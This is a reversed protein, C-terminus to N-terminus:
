NVTLNLRYRIMAVGVSLAASGGTLLRFRMGRL